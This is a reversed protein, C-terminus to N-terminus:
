VERALRGVRGCMVDERVKLREVSSDARRAFAADVRKRKLTELLQPDESELMRDYFKPVRLKKGDHVVFDDPFVDGKFRKYWEAALGPRRSMTVYEPRVFYEEGTDLDIRRLRDGEDIGTAKKMCYRAVYAASEWSLLGLTTFGLGWTEELTKSTFTKSKGVSKFVKRDASFDQGFLCAHYHPRYNEEGYEGVHLFRFPGLRKRLRKAFLQWHRVDVSGDEPLDGPRYTLTM